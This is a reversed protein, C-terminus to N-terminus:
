LEVELPPALLAPAVGGLDYLSVRARRGAIELLGASRPLSFRRPGASGPNVVLRGGEVTAGPRHTHGHLVILPRHRALARHLAPAPHALPGLAHVIVASLEGLQVHAVEPLRELDPDVDVNGRVARVPAWRGLRELIFAAGVDGAHLILEAGAFLAELRPELLGHTDSVLGVKRAAGASEM